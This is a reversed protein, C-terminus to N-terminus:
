KMLPAISLLVTAALLGVVVADRVIQRRRQRALNRRCEALIVRDSTNM